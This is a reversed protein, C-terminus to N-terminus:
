VAWESIEIAEHASAQAINYLPTLQRDLDDILGQVETSFRDLPWWALATRDVMTWVFEIAREIGVAAAAILALLSAANAATVASPEVHGALYAALLLLVIALGIVARLIWTSRNQAATRSGVTTTATM